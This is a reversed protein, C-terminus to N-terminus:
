DVELVEVTNPLVVDRIKNCMGIWDRNSEPLIVLGFAVFNNFEYEALGEPNADGDEQNDNDGNDNIDGDEKNVDDGDDEESIDGDEENDDDDESKTTTDGDEDQSDYDDNDDDDEDQSDNDDDQSDYDDNDDDEESIDGDEENDDDDESKTTADNDDDQQDYVFEQMGYFLRKRQNGSLGLNMEKSVLLWKNLDIDNCNSDMHTRWFQSARKKTKQIEPSTSLQLEPIMKFSIWQSYMGCEVINSDWMGTGENYDCGDLLARARVSYCGSPLIDDDDDFYAIYDHNCTAAISYIKNSGDVNAMEKEDMEGAYVQIHYTKIKRNISKDMFIELVMCENDHKMLTIQPAPFDHVVHFGRVIGKHEIRRIIYPNCTNFVIQMSKETSKYDDSENLKLLVEDIMKINANSREVDVGQCKAPTTINQQYQQQTKTITQLVNSNQKLQSNLITKGQEVRDKLEMLLVNRRKEAEFIVEKFAARIVDQQQTYQADLDGISNEISKQRQTFEECKANLSNMATQEAETIIVQQVEQAQPRPAPAPPRHKKNKNPKLKSLIRLKDRRKFSITDDNVLDDLFLELTAHDMDELEDICINEQRFVDILHGLRNSQLWTTTEKEVDIQQNQQPYTSCTSQGEDEVWNAM